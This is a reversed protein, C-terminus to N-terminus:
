TGNRAGGSAGAQPACDGTRQGTVHVTMAVDGGGVVATRVDRDFTVTDGTFTGDVGVLINGTLGRRSCLLQVSIRGNRVYPNEAGCDNGEGGFMAPSPASSEVCVTETARTGVPTDIVPRRSETRDTQTFATVETQLTWQGPSIAAARATEAGNNQVAEGADCAALALMPVLILSRM